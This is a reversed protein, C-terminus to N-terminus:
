LGFELVNGTLLHLVAFWKLVVYKEKDRMWALEFNLTVPSQLRYTYISKRGWESAIETHLFRM